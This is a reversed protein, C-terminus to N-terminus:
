RGSKKIIIEKYLDETFRNMMDEAVKRNKSKKLNAPLTEDLDKQKAFINKQLASNRVTISNILGSYSGELENWRKVFFWYPHEPFEKQMGKADSFHHQEAEQWDDYRSWGAPAKTM